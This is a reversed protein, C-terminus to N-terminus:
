QPAGGLRDFAGAFGADQGCKTMAASAMIGAAADDMVAAHQELAAGLESTRGESVVKAEAAIVEAYARELEGLRTTATACSDGAAVLAAAVEQDM